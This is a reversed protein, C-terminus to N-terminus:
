ESCYMFCLKNGQEFDGEELKVLQDSQEWTFKANEYYAWFKLEKWRTYCKPSITYAYKTRSGSFTNKQFQSNPFTCSFQWTRQQERNIYLKKKVKSAEKKRM